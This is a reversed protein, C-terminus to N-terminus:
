DDLVEGLYGVAEEIAATLEAKLVKKKGMVDTLIRYARQIKDHKEPSIDIEVIKRKFIGM